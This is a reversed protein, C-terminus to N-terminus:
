QTAAWDVWAQWTRMHRKVSEAQMIMIRRVCAWRRVKLRANSRLEQPVGDSILLGAVPAWSFIKDVAIEAVLRREARCTDRM